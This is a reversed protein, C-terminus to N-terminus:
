VRLTRSTRSSNSVTQREPPVAPTPVTTRVIFDAGRGGPAVMSTEGSPVTAPDTDPPHTSAATYSSALSTTALPRASNCRYPTLSSSANATPSVQPPIMSMKASGIDCIVKGCSCATASSMAAPRGVAIAVTM